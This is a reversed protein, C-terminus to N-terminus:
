RKLNIEHSIVMVVFNTDGLPPLSSGVGFDFQWKPHPIYLLGLDINLITNQFNTTGFSEIFSEWSQGIPFSINFTFDATEFKESTGLNYTLTLHDFLSHELAIKIEYDTHDTRLPRSALKPISM